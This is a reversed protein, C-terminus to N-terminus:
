AEAMTALFMSLVKKMDIMKNGAEDHVVLTKGLKSKELDQAMIGVWDGKGFEDNVYNFAFAKLHHKMEELDEKPVPVINEKLRMDSFALAGIGIGQGIMGSLRNSAATQNAAAANGLGIQNGSVQNAYNMGSNQNQSNANTGFGALTSLRNFQRNYANNYENSAYDQGYRALEKLARGSNFMGRASGAADIAKQGEKLRFQYGPDMQLNQGFNPDELGALAKVGSQRWPENDARNQNYMYLQTANASQAAERQADLAREGSHNTLGVADTLNGITNSPSSGSLSGLGVASGITSIAAGM